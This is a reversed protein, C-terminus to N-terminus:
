ATEEFALDARKGTFAEWFSAGRRMMNRMAVGSLWIEDWALPIMVVAIVANVICLTCWSGVVTPMALALGISTGAFPVIGIGFIVVAWPMTKYRRTGGVLGFVWDILYGLSGLFADSVPFARSLESDLVRETGQGFFPDWVSDVWGWQYSALYFAIFMAVIAMVVVPIRQSWASPNYAWGPPAGDDRGDSSPTADSVARRRRLLQVM